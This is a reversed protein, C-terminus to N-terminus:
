IKGSSRFLVVAVEANVDVFQENEPIEVFGDAKALTTIAGVAEVL